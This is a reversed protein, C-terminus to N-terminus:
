TCTKKLPFESRKNERIKESESNTVIHLYCILLTWGKFKFIHSIDGIHLAVCYIAFVKFFM